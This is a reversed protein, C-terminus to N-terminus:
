SVVGAAELAQAPDNYWRFRTAKGGEVTWIYGQNWEVPVGSERGTGHVTALVVVVEGANIFEYPEVRVDEYVDRIRAFSDPGRRTGPEVAYPPNIYEIESHILARASRGERWAEYIRRVIEVAAESM